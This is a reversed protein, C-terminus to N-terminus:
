TKMLAAKGSHDFVRNEDRGGGIAPQEATLHRKEVLILCKTRTMERTEATTLGLKTM